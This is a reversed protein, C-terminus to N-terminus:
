VVTGEIKLKVAKVLDLIESEDSETVRNDGPIFYRHGAGERLVVTHVLALVEHKNKGNEDKTTLIFLTWAEIGPSGIVDIAKQFEYLGLMGLRSNALAVAGAYHWPEAFFNETGAPVMFRLMPESAGPATFTVEHAVDVPCSDGCVKGTGACGLLNVALLLSLAVILAVSRVRM